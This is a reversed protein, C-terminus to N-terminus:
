QLCVIIYRPKSKGKDKKKNEQDFLLAKKGCEMVLAHSGSNFALVALRSWIELAVADDSWVCNGALRVVQTLFCLTLM